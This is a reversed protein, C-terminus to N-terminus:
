APQGKIVDGNMVENLNASPVFGNSATIVMGFSTILAFYVLLPTKIIMGADPPPSKLATNPLRWRGGGGDGFMMM